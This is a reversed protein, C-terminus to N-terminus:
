SSHRTTWEGRGGKHRANLARARPGEVGARFQPLKFCRHRRLLQLDRIMFSTSIEGRDCTVRKFRRHSFDSSCSAVPAFLSRQDAGM